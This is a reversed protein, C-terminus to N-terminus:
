TRRKCWPYKQKTEYIEVLGIIPLLILPLLDTNEEEEGLHVIDQCFVM